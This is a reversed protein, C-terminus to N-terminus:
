KYYTRVSYLALASIQVGPLPYLQAQGVAKELQDLGRSAQTAMTDLLSDLFVREHTSGKHCLPPRSVIGLQQSSKRGWCSALLQQCGWHVAIDYVILPFCWEFVVLGDLM